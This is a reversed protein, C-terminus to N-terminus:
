KQSESMGTGREPMPRTLHWAKWWPRSSPRGGRAALPEIWRLWAAEQALADHQPSLPLRLASEPTSGAGRWRECRRALGGTWAGPELGNPAWGRFVDAADLKEAAALAAVSREAPDAPRLDVGRKQFRKYFDGGSGLASVEGHATDLQDHIARAASWRGLRGMLVNHVVRLQPILPDTQYLLGIERRLRRLERGRLRRTDLGRATVRGNTPRLVGALLRFLTTKGAGSPGIVAVREGERITLDLDRLAAVRGFSVAAGELAFVAASPVLYLFRRGAAEFPHFERLAISTM